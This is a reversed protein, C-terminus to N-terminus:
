YPTSTSGAVLAIFLAFMILVVIGLALLVTGIIGLVMATQAQPTEAVM